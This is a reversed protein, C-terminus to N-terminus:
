ATGRAVPAPPLTLFLFSFPATHGRKRHRTNKARAMFPHHLTKSLPTRPSSKKSFTREGCDHYEGIM